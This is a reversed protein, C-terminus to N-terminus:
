KAVKEIFESSCFGRTIPNNNYLVIEYWNDKESLILCTEGKNFRGVEKFSTGVGSRVNSYTGGKYKGFCPYEDEVVVPIEEQPEEEEGDDDIPDNGFPKGDLLAWVADDVIGNKELWYETRLKNVASETKSGFIGDIKGVTDAYDKGLKSLLTQAEAVDEGSM